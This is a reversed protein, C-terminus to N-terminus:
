RSTSTTPTRTPAATAAASWARTRCSYGGIDQAGFQYRIWAQLRKAGASFGSSCNAGGNWPGADDYRARDSARTM